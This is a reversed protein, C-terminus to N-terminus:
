RQEQEQEQERQHEGGGGGVDGHCCPPWAAGGSAAVDLDRVREPQVWLAGDVGRKTEVAAGDAAGGLEEMAGQLHYPEGHGVALGPELCPDGPLAVVM